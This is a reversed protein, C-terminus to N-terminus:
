KHYPAGRALTAARYIQEVLVLRAIDHAMTLPSLSLREDCEQLLSEGLGWAGGVFFVVPVRDLLRGLWGAFAESTFARGGADLAVRLAGPPLSSRLMRRSEEEAVARPDTRGGAGERVEVVRVQWGYGATRRLYERVADRLGPHKIRGAAVLWIGAM